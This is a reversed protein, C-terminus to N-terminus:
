GHKKDENSTRTRDNPMKDKHTVLHTRIQVCLTFTLVTLTLCVLILLLSYYILSPNYERTFFALVFSGILTVLMGMCLALAGRMRKDRYLRALEADEVREDGHMLLADLVRFVAMRDQGLVKM